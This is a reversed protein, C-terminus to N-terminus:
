ILIGVLKGDDELIKAIKTALFAQVYTNGKETLHATDSGIYIDSNGGGTPATVYGTGDIPPRTTAVDIFYTNVGAAALNAQVGARVATYNPNFISPTFLPPSFGEVFVLKANPHNARLTTFYNTAATVTNAVTQGTYLDNAGGGHVIIVDPNLNTLWALRAANSYPPSGALYGSGGVGDSTMSTIGLTAAMRQYAGKLFAGTAISGAVTDSMVAPYVYSDGVVAVKPNLASPPKWIRYPKQTYIAVLGNIMRFEILRPKASPFLFNQIGYVGFGPTAVPTIPNGTFPKGDIFLDILFPTAYTFISLKDGDMMLRYTAVSGVGAQSTKATWTNSTVSMSGWCDVPWVAPLAGAAVAYSENYTVGDVPQGYQITPTDTSAPGTYSSQPTYPVRKSQETGIKATIAADLASSDTVHSAADAALTASAQKADLATQTTTSIPKDIDSTNDANGLGVTTKTVAGPAITNSTM